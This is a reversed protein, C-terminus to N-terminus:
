HKIPQLSTYTADGFQGGYQSGTTLAIPTCKDNDFILHPRERRSFIFNTGDEFEVYSTYALGSYTWNMGDLSYAHGGSYYSININNPSMNHFLAHYGGNCDVYVFPDETGHTILQPFLLNNSYTVYTNNDKWNSAYMPYLQSREGAPYSRNWTRLIGIFEDKNKTIIGSLVSDCVSVTVNCQINQINNYICNCTPIIQPESWIENIDSINNKFQMYEIFRYPPPYNSACQKPGTSGDFCECESYDSYNYGTYYIIYEGGNPSQIINIESSMYKTNNNFPIQLTNIYEYKSNYANMKDKAIAHVTRSNTVWSNVGCHNDFQSLLMHYNSNEDTIVSGGWSSMNYTNNIDYYGTGKTIPLLNLIECKIGSWGTRCICKGNNLDCLGNLSCNMDSKCPWAIQGCSVNSENIPIWMPYGFRGYCHFRYLTNSFNHHFFTYTECLNDSTSASICANLCENESSFIGLYTVYNTSKNPNLVSGYVNNCNEIVNSLLPTLETNAISLIVSLLSGLIHM